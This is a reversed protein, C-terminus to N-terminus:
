ATKSAITASPFGKASGSASASPDFGKVMLWVAMVMEQLALPMMLIELDM